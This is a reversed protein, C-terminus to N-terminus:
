QATDTSVPSANNSSDDRAANVGVLLDEVSQQGDGFLTAELSVERVQALLNWFVYTLPRAVSGLSKFKRSTCFSQMWHIM